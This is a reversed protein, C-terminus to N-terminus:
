LLLTKSPFYAFKCVRLTGIYGVTNNVLVRKDLGSCLDPIRYAVHEDAKDVVNEEDEEGATRTSNRYVDSVTEETFTISALFDKWFSQGAVRSLPMHACIFNNEPKECRLFQIVGREGMAKRYKDLTWPDCTIPCFVARAFHGLNAVELPRGSSGKSHFSIAKSILEKLTRMSREEKQQLWLPPCYATEPYVCWITTCLAFYHWLYEDDFNSAARSQCDEAFEAATEPNSCIKHVINFTDAGFSSQNKTM